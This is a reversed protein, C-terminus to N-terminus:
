KKVFDKPLMGFQKKFAKSFYSTSSFGVLYCVENIKYEGEQLIEAAKKLRVIKIFDNPSFESIGKIKRLLSSRSMSMASALKDVHFDPDSINKLIVDNLKNLFIEDAKNLAISGTQLFPSSAFAEKIKMRNNLLNSIQAYLYDLSFPKEIYADAGSDLGEIKNLVSNRATLLIVPIHSYDVNQKIEHCLELGDMQPMMIDTIVISIIEKELVKLAEIGNKAYFVSYRRKLKDLIFALLEDDDEVILVNEKHVFVAPQENSLEISEAEPTDEQLLFSNNQHIPISLLFSNINKRSKDLILKGEHLEALSRALALGIGSGNKSVEKNHEKIQYFPEFIKDSFEEPIINGDSDVRIFFQNGSENLSVDIQSKAYKIANTFLNSIIKTLAERDVDAFIKEDPLHLSMELSRQKAVLCFRNHIGTILESIDSHVFAISFAKSETKRFDMLQNILLLLRDTNKQMVDLNNNLEEKSVDNKLIYDLPSKILTLPTRVEHAINTFFDIKNNFLEAEKGKEFLIKDNEAKKKVRKNQTIVIYIVLAITMAIYFIYAINTKWFPPMIKINLNEYNENWVGDNNSAKIQFQYDGPPLNSYIITQARDLYVWDNELGVMKYAYKNQEPASFSLAAFDISFSSMNHKLTISKSQDVIRESFTKDGNLIKFDTIAIPPIYDNPVFADPYFAILGNIGGFYLKGTKDKYGSKYNFQNCLLGNGTNFQQIAKTQPNFKMLGSNSSLWLNGSNDELIKYVVDSKLGDRLGYTQFNDTTERYVCIGGSEGTFWMQKKSDEFLSTIKYHCISKPDTDSHIYNKFEKTRPNFRFAGANYTAFWINGKSDELIDSIFHKGLEPLRIFQENQRDFRFAGSSTGIWINGERDRSLAFVDNNDLSYPAASKAYHKIVKRTNIDLINIGNNFLGIWLRDGDLIVDHVNHYSIGNANSFFHEFSNNKSDYRNLGADETGIWLNGNNDECIGSIREGSISNQGFVPYFKEFFNYQKPIYNVGGFYTGIWIGGERDKYISYIANDSLSFKDNINQTIHKTNRTVPDLIYLGSETGIWIESDINAISRVFLHSLDDKGASNISSIGGTIKNLLGIGGNISGTVIYNNQFGTLQSFNIKLFSEELNSNVVDEFNNTNKNLYKRIGLGHMCVWVQDDNDIYISWTHADENKTYMDYLKQQQASYKYLRDAAFWINGKKDAKIDLVPVNIKRGSDSIVDFHSFSDTIPNYIYIGRDTGVWIKGDTHEYLHWIMNNGLSSANDYIKKYVKITNGDYRNLGDKTGFWMFGRKDQLICLVTNQSLENEITIHKFYYDFIKASAQNNTVVLYLIILIYTQVTKKM